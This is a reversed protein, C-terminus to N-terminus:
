QMQLYLWGNTKNNEGKVVWNANPYTAGVVAAEVANGILEDNTRILGGLARLIKQLANAKKWLRVLSSTTTDRGGTLTPYAAEVTKVLSAFRNPDAKIQCSTDDDEVAFVRFNQNPHANRFSTIQQDSLLLVSGTWDDDDMNFQYYSGVAREGACSYSQLSDTSGAQGLIHIEYEPNGKPWGEFDSVFHAHKMYLGHPPGAPAGGGGGLFNSVPPEASPHDFDTEVPVLVLVPTAPPRDADLMLRRGDLTFAVPAEHDAGVTAVLLDADGRWAARHAPVPLYMELPVAAHAEATFAADSIGSARAVARLGRHDAADLWRQLHLKHERIPSRDLADKVQHRFDANALARALRWAVRERAAPAGGQVGPPPSLPAHAPPEPGTRDTCGALVLALALLALRPSM